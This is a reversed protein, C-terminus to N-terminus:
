AWVPHAGLFSALDSGHAQWHGRNLSAPDAQLCSPDLHHGALLHGVLAQRDQLFAEWTDLYCRVLKIARLGEEAEASHDLIALTLQHFLGPTMARDPM